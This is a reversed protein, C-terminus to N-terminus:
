GVSAAKSKSAMKTTHSARHASPPTFLQFNLQAQFAEHLAQLWCNVTPYNELRTPGTQAYATIPYAARHLTKILVLGIM